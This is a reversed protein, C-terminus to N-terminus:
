VRELIVAGCQHVTGRWGAEVLATADPGALIAPGPISV